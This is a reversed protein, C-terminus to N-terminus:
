KRPECSETKTHSARDAEQNDGLFTIDTVGFQSKKKERNLKVRPSEAPLKGTEDHQTEDTNARTGESGRNYVGDGQPLGWRTHYHGTDKSFLLFTVQGRGSHATEKDMASNIQYIRKVLGLDESAKDGLSEHGNPVLVFLGKVTM